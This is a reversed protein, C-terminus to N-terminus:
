NCTVEINNYLFNELKIVVTKFDEFQKSHLHGQVSFDSSFDGGGEKFSKIASFDAEVAGTSPVGSRISGRITGAVPERKWVREM